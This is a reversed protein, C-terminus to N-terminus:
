AVDTLRGEARTVVSVPGISHGLPYVNMTQM